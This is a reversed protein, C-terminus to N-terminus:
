RGPVGNNDSTAKMLLLSFFCTGPDSRKESHCIDKAVLNVLSGLKWALVDAM